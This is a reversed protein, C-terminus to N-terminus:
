ESWASQDEVGVVRPSHFLRRHAAMDVVPMPTEHCLCRLTRAPRPPHTRRFRRDEWLLAATLLALAVAALTITM